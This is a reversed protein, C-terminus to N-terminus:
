FEALVRDFAAAFKRGVSGRPLTAADSPPHTPANSALEASDGAVVRATTAAAATVVGVSRFLQAAKTSEPKTVAFHNTAQLPGVFSPEATAALSERPAVRLTVGAAGALSGATKGFNAAWITYDAAGVEGNADFDAALDPGTQGFQAAWIAYDAAGVAGDRNADGALPPIGVQRYITLERYMQNFYPDQYGSNRWSVLVQGDNQVRLAPATLPMESFPYLRLPDELTANLRESPGAAQGLSTYRRLYIDYAGGAETSPLPGRLWGIAVDGQPGLAVNPLGNTVFNTPPSHLIDPFDYTVSSVLSPGTGLPQGASSYRRWAVRNTQTARLTDPFTFEFQVDDRTWAVVLSGDSRVVAAPHRVVGATALEPQSGLSEDVLIPATLPQNQVDFMRLWIQSPSLIDGLWNDTDEGTRWTVMATGDPQLGLSVNQIRPLPYTGDVALVPTGLPGGTGDLRQLWLGQSTTWGVVATGQTSTALHVHHRDPSGAFVDAVDRIDGLPQGDASFSQIRLTGDSLQNPSASWPFPYMNQYDVWAVLFNGEEDSAIAPQSRFRREDFTIRRLRTDWIGDPGLQRIYINDAQAQHYSSSFPDIYEHKVEARLAALTTDNRGPALSVGSPGPRTDPYSFTWDTFLALPVQGNAPVQPEVWGENVANRGPYGYKDGDLLTGALDRVAAAKVTLQWLAEPVLPQGDLRRVTVRTERTVADYTSAYDLETTPVIVLNTFRTGRSIELASAWNIAPDLQESFSVQLEDLPGLFPDARLITENSNYPFGDYSTPGFDAADSLISWALSGPNSGVADVTTVAPPLNVLPLGVLEIENNSSSGLTFLIPLGNEGRVLPLGAVPFGFFSEFYLRSGIWSGEPGLELLSAGYTGLFVRDGNQLLSPAADFSFSGLTDLSKPEGQPTGSSDFWGALVKAGGAVVLFSGDDRVALAPAHERSLSPDLLSITSGHLAGEADILRGRVIYDSPSEEESWAIVGGSAALSLTPWQVDHAETPERVLVADDAPTGTSSFERLWVEAESGIWALLASGDPLVDVPAPRERLEWDYVNPMMAAAVAPGAPVGSSGIKRVWVIREDFNWESWSVFYSGDAAVAVRPLTGHTAASDKAVVVSGTLPVGAPTFSRAVLEYEGPTAALPEFWAAATVGNSNSDIGVDRYPDIPRESLPFPTGLLETGNLLARSELAEIRRAFPLRRRPRGGASSRVASSRVNSDPVTRSGSMFGNWWRVRRAPM